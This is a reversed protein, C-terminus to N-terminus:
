TGTLQKITIAMMMANLTKTNTMRRGPREM